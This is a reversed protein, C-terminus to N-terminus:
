SGLTPSNYGLLNFYEGRIFDSSIVLTDNNPLKIYSCDDKFDYNVVEYKSHSTNISSDKGFKDRIYNLKTQETTKNM